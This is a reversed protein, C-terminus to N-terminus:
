ISEPMCSFALRPLDNNEYQTIEPGIESITRGYVDVGLGRSAELARANEREVYLMFLPKIVAWEGPAIATDETVAAASKGAVSRIDGYGHYHRAAAVAQATVDDDGIVLGFAWKVSAALESLEM